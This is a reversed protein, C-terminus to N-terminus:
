HSFRKGLLIEMRNLLPALRNCDFSDMICQGAFSNLDIGISLPESNENLRLERGLFRVKCKERKMGKADFNTFLKEENVSLNYNSSIAKLVLLFKNARKLDTSLFLFDDVFALFLDENNNFPHRRFVNIWIYNLYIQCLQSSLSGGQRIGYKAYRCSTKRGLGIITKYLYSRLLQIIKKTDFTQCGALRDIDIVSNNLLKPSLQQILFQDSCCDGHEDGNGTLVMQVQKRYFNGHKRVLNVNQVFLKSPLSYGGISIRKCTWQKSINQIALMIISMLKSLNISPYCNQFDGRIVYYTQSLDPSNRRKFDSIRGHLDSFSRTQQECFKRNLCNLISIIFSVQKKFNQNSHIKAYRLRTIPRLGNPKPIFRLSSHRLFQQLDECHQIEGGGG